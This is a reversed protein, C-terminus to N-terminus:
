FAFIFCTHECTYVCKSCDWFTYLIGFGLFFIYFHQNHSKLFFFDFIQNQSKLIHETMANLSPTFDHTGLFLSTFHEVEEPSKPFKLYNNSLYKVISCSIRRMILSVSTRSTGISNATKRYREEDSIYHLFSAVQTEVFSSSSM